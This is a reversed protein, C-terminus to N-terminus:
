FERKLGKINSKLDTILSDYSKDMDLIFKKNKNTLEFTIKSDYGRIDGHSSVNFKTNLFNMIDEQKALKLASHSDVVCENCCTTYGDDTDPNPQLCCECFGNNKGTKAVRKSTTFDKLKM